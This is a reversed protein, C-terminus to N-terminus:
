KGFEKGCFINYVKVYIGRGEFFREIDVSVNVGEDRFKM